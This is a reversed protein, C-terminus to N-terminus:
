FRCRYGLHVAVICSYDPLAYVPAEAHPQGSVMIERGVNVWPSVYLGAHKFPFWTWGARLNPYATTFSCITGAPEHTVSRHYLFVSPGFFLGEGNGTISYDVFLAQSPGIRANRWGAEKNVDMMMGDPFHSSFLSAMASWHSLRKPAYRLSFSYGKLFFPAPDLELSVSSGAVETRTTTQAHAACPAIALTLLLIGTSLSIPHTTM